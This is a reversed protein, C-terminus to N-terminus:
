IFPMIIIEAPLLTEEPMEHSHRGVDYSPIHIQVSGFIINNLSYLRDEQIMLNINKM